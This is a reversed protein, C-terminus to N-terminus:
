IAQLSPLRERREFLFTMFKNRDYNFRTGDGLYNFIGVLVDDPFIHDM